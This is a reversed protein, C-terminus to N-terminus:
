KSRLQKEILSVRDNLSELTIPSEETLASEVENLRDVLQEIMLNYTEYDQIIIDLFENVEDKDYGSIFFGRERFVKHCVDLPTFSINEKIMTKADLLM